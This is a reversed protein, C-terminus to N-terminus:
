TDTEDTQIAPQAPPEERMQWRALVVAWNRGKLFLFVGLIFTVFANSVDYWQVQRKWDDGSNTASMTFLYHAWNLVQPLYSSVYYLGVGMFAICYCDVLSMAGFSLNPPVGRVVFRSIPIAMFWILVAGVALAALVLWPSLSPGIGTPSRPYLKLYLLVQPTFQTAVRLLFDLAMLRLVVVVLSQLNM